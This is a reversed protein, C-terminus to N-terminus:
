ESILRHNSKTEQNSAALLTRPDIMALLNKCFAQRGKEILSDVKSPTVGGLCEGMEKRTFKNNNAYLHLAEAYRPEMKKMVLAVADPGHQHTDSDTVPELHVASEDVPELKHNDGESYSSEKSRETFPKMGPLRMRSFSLLWEWVNDGLCYTESKDHAYFLVDTAKDEAKMWASNHGHCMAYLHNYFTAALKHHYHSYFLEFAESDGKSFCAILHATQDDPHCFALGKRKQHANRRSSVNAAAPPVCAGM